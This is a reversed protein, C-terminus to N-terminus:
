NKNNGNDELKEIIEEGINVVECLIDNADQLSHLWVIYDDNSRAKKALKRLRQYEKYLKVKRSQLKQIKM